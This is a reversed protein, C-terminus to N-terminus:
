SAPLYQYLRVLDGGYKAFVIPALGTSTAVPAPPSSIPVWWAEDLAYEGLEAAAEASDEVSGNVITEYLDAAKDDKFGGYFLDIWQFQNSDSFAMPYAIVPYKGSPWVEFFFTGCDAISEITVTIGIDDMAQIMIPEYGASDTFSCGPITLDFGDAYGAEAMLENAADLDYEYRTDGGEVYSPDGPNYPQSSVRGLGFNLSENIAVRDFAMNMAQRVRTDGLAPVIEGARDIIFMAPSLATSTSIAFGAAEADVAPTATLFYSADIQGSQLANLAAVDDDFQLLEVTDYPYADPNWYDPNRVFTASVEPVWDDLLYPGTGVPAGSLAEPDELATPSAIWGCSLGGLEASGIPKTATMDLTYEGTATFESVFQAFTQPVYGTGDRIEEFATVVAAADLHTGDTFDVDERLTFSASLRDESIEYETALWPEHELVVKGDQETTVERLLGEYVTESGPRCNAPNNGTLGTAPSWDATVTARISLSTPGVDVPTPSCAALASVAVVTALALAMTRRITNV